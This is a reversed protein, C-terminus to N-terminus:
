KSAFPNENMAKSVVGNTMEYVAFVIAGSFTVKIFRPVLGTWLKLPGEEAFIRLGCHLSTRYVKLGNISQMRTKVVDIPQTALVQVAGTLGGLTLAMYTPVKESDNPRVLQKLFHYVSFKVASNTAQRFVTPWVGQFFSRLGRTNYMDRVNPGLGFLPTVATIASASPKPAPPRVAAPTSAVPRIPKGSVGSKASHGTFASASASVSAKPKIVSQKNTVASNQPSDAAIAREVMTTKISEFPVVVFSEIIGTFMGAIVVQPASVQGQKDAMFKTAWNYISFRVVARTANGTVVPSCGRYYARGLEPLELPKAGKIDRHLQQRTKM